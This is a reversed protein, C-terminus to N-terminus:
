CSSSCLVCHFKIFDTLVILLQVASVSLSKVCTRVLQDSNHSVFASTCLATVVDAPDMRTAVIPELTIIVDNSYHLSFVNQAQASTTVPVCGVQVKIPLDLDDFFFSKLM